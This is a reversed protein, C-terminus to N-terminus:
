LQDTIDYVAVLSVPDTDRLLASMSALAHVTWGDRHRLDIMTHSRGRLSALGSRSRDTNTLLREAPSDILEDLRYGLLQTCAPNACIVTADDHM